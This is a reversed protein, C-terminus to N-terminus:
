SGAGRCYLIYDDLFRRDIDHMKLLEVGVGEGGARATGKWVVRGVAKIRKFGRKWPLDLLLLIKEGIEVDEGAGGVFVGRPSVDRAFLLQSTRSVHSYFQVGFDAPVRDFARKDEGELSRGSM